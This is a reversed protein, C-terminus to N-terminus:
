NYLPRAYFTTTRFTTFNLDLIYWTHERSYLHIKPPSSDKMLTESKVTSISSLIIHSLSTLILLCLCKGKFINEYLYELTNMALVIIM